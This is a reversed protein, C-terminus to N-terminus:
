IYEFKGFRRRYAGLGVLCMKDLVAEVCAFTKKEDGTFIKDAGKGEVKQCLDEPFMITFEFESGANIAQYAKFFSNGKNKGRKVTTPHVEVFDPSTIKAGNFINCHVPAFQVSNMWADGSVKYQTWTGALKQSDISCELFMWNGVIPDGKENKNFVSLIEELKSENGVADKLERYRPHLLRDHQSILWNDVVKDGALYARGGYFPTIFRAKKTIEM